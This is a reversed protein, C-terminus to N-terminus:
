WEIVRKLRKLVTLAEKEQVDSLGASLTVHLTDDDGLFDYKLYSSSSKLELKQAEEIFERASPGLPRSM